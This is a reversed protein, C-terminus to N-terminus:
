RSNVTLRRTEAGFGRGGGFAVTVALPRGSAAAVPLRLTVTFRGRRIVATTTVRYRRGGVTAVASVRVRGRVSRGTAGTYVAATQTSATLWPVFEGADTAVEVDYRAVGSGPDTAGWAVPIDVGSAGEPSAITPTPPTSDVGFSATAGSAFTSGYRSA